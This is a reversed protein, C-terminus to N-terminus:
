LYSYGFMHPFSEYQHSHIWIRLLYRDGYFSKRNHFVLNNNFLLIDGPALRTEISQHSVSDEITDFLYNIAETQTFTLTPVDYKRYAELTYSKTWFTMLGGKKNLNFVPLKAFPSEGDMQEGRRDVYFPSYLVKLLDLNREYIKNHVAVTSVLLNEGGQEAQQLCLLGAFTATDTHFILPNGTNGNRINNKSEKSSEIQKAIVPWIFIKDRNNYVPTGLYCGLIFTAIKIEDEPLNIPFNKLIIAGAYQCLQNKIYISLQILEDDSNQHVFNILSSASHIIAAADINGYNEKFKKTHTIIANNSQLPLKLIIKEINSQNLLNCSPHHIAESNTLVCTPM